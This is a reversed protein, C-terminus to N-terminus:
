PPCAPLLRIWRTSRTAVTTRHTVTLKRRTRLTTVATPELHEQLGAAFEFETSVVPRAFVGASLSIPATMM